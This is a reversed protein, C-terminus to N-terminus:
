PNKKTMKEIKIVIFFYTATLILQSKRNSTISACYIMKGCAVRNDNVFILKFHM